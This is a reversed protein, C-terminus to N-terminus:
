DDVNERAGDLWRHIPCFSVNTITRTAPIPYGTSSNEEGAWSPAKGAIFKDAEEQTEFYRTVEEDYEYKVLDNLYNYSFFRCGKLNYPNSMEPINKRIEDIDAIDLIAKAFREAVDPDMEDLMMCLRDRNIEGHKIAYKILDNMM